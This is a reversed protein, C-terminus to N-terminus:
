QPIYAFAEHLFHVSLFEETEAAYFRFFSREAGNESANQRGCGRHRATEQMRILLVAGM